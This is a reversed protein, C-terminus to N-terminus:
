HLTSNIKTIREMMAELMDTSTDETDNIEAVRELEIDISKDVEEVYSQLVTKYYGSMSDRAPEQNIVHHTDFKIRRSLAFPLYRLLGIVPRESKPSFMYNITFPDEIVVFKSNDQVINGIIETNNTLKLITIM